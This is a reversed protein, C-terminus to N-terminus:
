QDQFFPANYQELLKPPNDVINLIKVTANVEQSVGAENHAVISLTYNKDEEYDLQKITHITGNEDIAFQSKDDGGIISYSDITNEDINSGNSQITGIETGISTNEDITFNPPNLIVPKLEAINNINIELNVTSSSAKTNTAIVSMVYLKKSEYNLEEKLYIVGSPTVDFYEADDGTLIITNIDSTGNTEININGIPSNVISNEDVTISTNNLIPEDDILNNINITLNIDNSVGAANRTNVQIIYSTQLEYDLIADSTVMIYGNNTITFYESGNGSLTFSTLATDGSNIISIKGISSNKTNEDVAKITNSLIPKVEPMNNVNITVRVINSVGAENIAIANLNYIKITEYDFLNNDSTLITGNSDITFKDSDNGSLEFLNINRDGISNIPVVGVVINAITNEDINLTTGQLEPPVDAIDGIPINVTIEKSFGAGNKAKVTLTYLKQKEYDLAKKLKMQGNSDISFYTDYGGLEFEDINSSGKDIISVQGVIDGITANEDLINMNTHKLIAVTEYDDDIFININVPLSNGFANSAVATLSYRNKEEYNLTAQNVILSGNDLLRFKEAGDGTLSMYEIPMSGADFGIQAVVTGIPSNEKVNGGSFSVLSPVDNSNIVSIFIQTSVEGYSNTVIVKPRYTIISEYDLSAENSVRITGNLDITFNEVGNGELRVDAIASGGEEIIVKSVITGTISNEYVYGGTYNRITPTDAIDNVSIYLIVPMSSGENNKALVIFGYSYKSEYDLVADLALRITGNSDITFLDSSEGILEISNISSTGKNFSLQAVVTGVSANEDVSGGVMGIYEPADLVNSVSIYVGVNASKGNRNVAQTQLKYLWKTEYDLTIGEKVRIEGQKDIEFDESGKGSLNTFNIDESGRLVEITGVITGGITNEAVSKSFGKIIPILNNDMSKAEADDTSNTDKLYVYRFADEYINEGAYIKQVMSELPSYSQLLLDKDITPLWSLLDVNSINSDVENDYIKYRLLRSAIRNIKDIIEEQTNGDEIMNKLLEFTVTTLINVKFGTYKIDKGTAIAYVKGRNITPTTDITFDDNADIDEGGVAEVIYLKDDELKQMFTYPIKIEGADYLTNGNSTTGRYIVIGDRYGDLSSITFNADRLPGFYIQDKVFTVKYGYPMCGITANSECEVISSNKSIERIPMGGVLIPLTSNIGGSKTGINNNGDSPINLCEIDGSCNSKYIHILSSSKPYTSTTEVTTNSSSNYSSNYTGNTSWKGFIGGKFYIPIPILASSSNHEPCEPSPTLVIIFPRSDPEITSSDDTNNNDLRYVKIDAIHGLNIDEQKQINFSMMQSSGLIKIELNVEIPYTTNDEFFKNSSDKPMANVRYTSPKIQKDNLIYFHEMGCVNDKIDLEGADWEVILDYDLHPKNWKLSVEVAGDKPMPVEDTITDPLEVVTVSVSEEEGIVGTYVVTLKRDKISNIVSQVAPYIPISLSKGALLDKTLKYPEEFLAKRQGSNIDDYYLQIKGGEEFTVVSTADVLDVNSDNTITVACNDAKAKMRGRFFYNLFGAANSIARPLLHWANDELVSMDGQFTSLSGGHMQTHDNKYIKENLANYFYSRIKIALKNHSELENSVIYCKEVNKMDTAEWPTDEYNAPLAKKEITDMVDWSYISYGSFFHTGTFKAEKKMYEFLEGFYYSNSDGYKYTPVSNMAPKIANLGSGIIHFGSAGKGDEGGRAWWELADGNPHADNRTHAPVNMDNMVHLIHGVSVLMKAQYKRRDEVKTSVFGLRFYELASVYDYKNTGSASGWAWLLADTEGLSFGKYNQQPDTFHNLFRGYGASWSGSWVADELITGAEIMAQYSPISNFKQGWNSIGNLEGDHIYKLYSLEYGEFEENDYNQEDIKSNKIFSMLNTAKTIAKQDIARHTNIEWASVSITLAMVIIMIRKM